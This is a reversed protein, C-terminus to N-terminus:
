AFVRKYLTICWKGTTGAVAGEQGFTQVIFISPNNVSVAKSNGPPVTYVTGNISFDITGPGANFVDFTGQIYDNVNPATWVAQDIPDKINGCLDETLIVGDPCCNNNNGNGHTGCMYTVGKDIQNTM